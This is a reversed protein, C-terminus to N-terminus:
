KKEAPSSKMDIERRESLRFVNPQVEFGPLVLSTTRITRLFLSSTTTSFAAYRTSKLPSLISWAFAGPGNVEQGQVLREESKRIFYTASELLTTPAFPNSGEVEQDRVLYRFGM